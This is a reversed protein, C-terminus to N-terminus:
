ITLESDEQNAQAQRFLEVLIYFALGAPILLSFGEKLHELAAFRSGQVYALIMKLIFVNIAYWIFISGAKKFSEINKNSFYNGKEIESLVSLFYTFGYILYARWFFLGASIAYYSWQLANESTWWPANKDASKSWNQFENFQNFNFERFDNLLISVSALIVAYTVITLIQTNNKM